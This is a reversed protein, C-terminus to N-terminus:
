WNPKYIKFDETKTKKWVSFSRRGELNELLFFSSYYTEPNNEFIILDGNKNIRGFCKGTQGGNILQLMDIKLKTGKVIFYGPTGLNPNNIENPTPVSDCTVFLVQGSNFFRLFSNQSIGWISSNRNWKGHISHLIYVANTDIGTKDKVIHKQKNYKFVKPNNARVGGEDTFYYGVCSTMITIMALYFFTRVM